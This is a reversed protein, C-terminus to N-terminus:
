MLKGSEVKRNRPFESSRGSIMVLSPSVFIEAQANSM